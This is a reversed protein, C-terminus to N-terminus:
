AAHENIVDEADGDVDGAAIGIAAVLVTAIVHTTSGLSVVVAGRCRRGRDYGPRSPNGPM